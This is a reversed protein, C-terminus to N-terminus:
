QLAGQEMMHTSAATPKNTHRVTARVATVTLSVTNSV